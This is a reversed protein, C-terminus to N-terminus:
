SEGVEAADIVERPNELALWLAICEDATVDADLQGLLTPDVTVLTLQRAPDTM